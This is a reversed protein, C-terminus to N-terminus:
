LDRREGCKLCLKEPFKLSDLGSGYYRNYYEYGPSITNPCKTCHHYKRARVKEQKVFQSLIEMM